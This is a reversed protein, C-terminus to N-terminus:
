NSDRDFENAAKMLRDRQEKLSLKAFDTEEAKLPGAPLGKGIATKKQLKDLQEKLSKNEDALTKAQTASDQLKVLEVAHYLGDPVTTLVKYQNLLGIVKKYNDSNQDKLWSEKESIRHYADEWSKNFQSQQIKIQHEGAAKRAAEARSRAAHALDRDGDADFEKAAKEYDEATFGKEDRFQNTQSTEATQRSKSWEEREKALAEKQAKIAEKEANIESWTKAKRAEEKAYKSEKKQAEPKTEQKPADATKLSSAKSPEETAQTEESSSDEVQSSTDSSQVETPAETTPRSDIDVGADFDQAMALVGDATMAESMQAKYSTSM